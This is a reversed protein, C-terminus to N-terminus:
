NVNVVNTHCLRDHVALGNKSFMVMFISLLIIIYYIFEFILAGYFYLYKSAFVIFFLSILDLLLTNALCSRFIMQNMTLEGHQSVVKIKMIKKGITQGNNYIQYVVFYLIVIVLRGFTVIGQYRAIDYCVDIYKEYSLTSIQQTTTIEEMVEELRNNLKLVKDSDIFMGTLLSAIMSVIFVDILYACLRQTFLPKNSLNDEDLKEEKDKNKRDNKLKSM